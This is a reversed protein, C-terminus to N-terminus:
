KRPNRHDPTSNPPRTRQRGPVIRPSTDPRTSEASPSRGVDPSFRAADLTWSVRLGSTAWLPEADWGKGNDLV